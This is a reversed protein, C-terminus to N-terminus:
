EFREDNEGNRRNTRWGHLSNLTRYELGNKGENKEDTLTGFDADEVPRIEEEIKIEAFESFSIPSDGLSVSLGIIPKVNKRKCFLVRSENFISTFWFARHDANGSITFLSTM